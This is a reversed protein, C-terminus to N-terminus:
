PSSFVMTKALNILGGDRNLGRGDFANSIFLGGPPSLLPNTYTFAHNTSTTNPMFVVLSIQFNNVYYTM